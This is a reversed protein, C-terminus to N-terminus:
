HGAWFAWLRSTPSDHHLVIYCTGYSVKISDGMGPPDSQSQCNCNQLETPYRGSAHQFDHGSSIYNIIYNYIYNTVRGWQSAVDLYFTTGLVAVTTGGWTDGLYTLIDVM